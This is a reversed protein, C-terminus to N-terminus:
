FDFNLAIESGEEVQVVATARRTPISDDAFFVVAFVTYAGINDFHFRYLGSKELSIPAYEAGEVRIYRRRESIYDDINVAGPIACLYVSAANEPASVYGHAFAFINFRLDQQVVDGEVLRIAEETEPFRTNAVQQYRGVLRADGPPLHDFSFYGSEDTYGSFHTQRDGEDAYVISVGFPPSVGFPLSSFPAHIKGKVSANFESVAFDERWIAGNDLRRQREMTFGLGGVYISAKLRYEGSELGTQRYWGESDTEVDGRSPGSINLRQGALPAGAYTVLGEIISGQSMHILLDSTEDTSAPLEVETTLFGSREVTALRASGPLSDVYYRGASDTVGGSEGIRVRAEEIPNGKPDVVRLWGWGQELNFNAKATLGTGLRVRQSQVAYGPARIAVGYHQPSRLGDVTFRGDPGYMPVFGGSPAFPRGWDADSQRQLAMEFSPIAAGTRADVVRGTITGTPLLVIDLQELDHALDRSFKVSFGDANAALSYPESGLVEIEYFGSENTVTSAGRGGYIHTGPIPNGSLDRVHGTLRHRAYEKQVMDMVLRLGTIQEGAYRITVEGHQPTKSLSPLGDGGSGSFMARPNRQRAFLRYTGPTLGLIEFNGAKDMPPIKTQVLGFEDESLGSHGAYRDDETLASVHVNRVERGNVDTVVGSITAERLMTITIGRRGSPTLEFAPAEAMAYGRKRAYLRVEYVSDYVTAGFQGQENTIATLSGGVMAKEIPAGNVDRVEGWIIPGFEVPFDLGEVAQGEDVPVRLMRDESRPLGPYGTYDALRITWLGPSLEDLLYRGGSDTTAKRGAGRSRRASVHAGVIGVGSAQVFAQGSISATKAQVVFEVKDPKEPAVAGDAAEETAPRAPPPESVALSDSRAGQAPRVIEVDEDQRLGAILLAVFIVFGVIILPRRM